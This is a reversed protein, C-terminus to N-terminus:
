DLKIVNVKKSIMERSTLANIIYMGDHYESVDIEIHNTATRGSDYVLIGTHTFVRLQEIEDQGNLHVKLVDAVPNPYAILLEQGSLGNNPEYGIKFTLDEGRAQVYQGAANMTVPQNLHILNFNIYSELRFDLEEIIVFDMKGIVGFGSSAIDSTRTYAVDVKAKNPQDKVLSMMPSNYEMWNQDYFQVNMTGEEVIETNYGVSFTMGYMDYAPNSASGLVIEIEVLDGPGPNPTLPVFYLPINELYAIPSPTVNNYKGYNANVAITDQGTVIGDGNTDVHKENTSTAGQNNEWDYGYQGYFEETPTDREPGVIGACYGVPLVDTINVAGDRNVDGPWICDYICITDTAASGPIETLDVYIKVVECDGNTICYEFEFYDTVDVEDTPPTYVLLNYGSVDQNHINLSSNGEYYDITGGLDSEGGNTLDFSWNGIPVKYDIVMPTNIATSLTFSEASPKYDSVVISVKAFECTTQGIICVEYTFFDPGNYNADPTYTFVGTSNTLTGHEPDTNTQVFVGPGDNALVEIVVDNNTSVEAYDNRAFTNPAAAELVDITYTRVNTTGNFLYYLTFQDTGRFDENPTYRLAGDSDEVVVSGNSPESIFDHGEKISLVLDIAQEEKTFVAITDTSSYDNEYFVTVMGMDCTEVDDCATYHFQAIGEFGPKPTFTVTSDVISTEITGYNALTAARLNIIESSSYDNELVNITVVDNIEASVFDNKATVEFEVINFAIYIFASSSTAPDTYQISLTDPGIYGPNPQYWLRYDHFGNGNVQIFQRGATGNSYGQASGPTYLTEFILEFEEDVMLTHNVYNQASVIVASLMLCIALVAKILNPKSVNM